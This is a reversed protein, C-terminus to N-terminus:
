NLNEFMNRADKTCLINLVKDITEERNYGTIWGYGPVECSYNNNNINKEMNVIPSSSQNPNYIFSLHHRHEVKYKKIFYETNCKREFFRCLSSFGTKPYVSFYETPNNQAENWDRITVQEPRKRSLRIYKDNTVVKPPESRCEGYFYYKCMGCCEPASENLYQELSIDDM